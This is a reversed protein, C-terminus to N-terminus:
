IILNLMQKKRPYLKLANIEEYQFKLTIFFFYKKKTVEVFQIADSIVIDIHDNNSLLILYNQFASFTDTNRTNLSKAQIYKSM